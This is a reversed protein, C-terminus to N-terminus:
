HVEESLFPVGEAVKCQGAVRRKPVATSEVPGLIDLPSTPDVVFVRPNWSVDPHRAIGYRTIGLPDDASRRLADLWNAATPTRIEPEFADVYGRRIFDLTEEKPFAGSVAEIFSMDSSRGDFLVVNREDRPQFRYEKAYLERYVDFISFGTRSSPRGGGKM